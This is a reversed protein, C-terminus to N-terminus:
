STYLLCACLEDAGGGGGSGQLVLLPLGFAAAAARVVHTKGTGPPGYLLLGAPPRVRWARLADAHETFGGVLACVADYARRQGAFVTAPEASTSTTPKSRHTMSAAHGLLASKQGFM